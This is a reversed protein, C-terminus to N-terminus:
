AAMSHHEASIKGTEVLGFRARENLAYLPVDCPKGFVKPCLPSRGRNSRGDAARVRTAPPALSETRALVTPDPLTQSETAGLPESSLTFREM